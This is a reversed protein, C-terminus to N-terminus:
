ELSIAYTEIDSLCSQLHQDEKDRNKQFEYWAERTLQNLTKLESSLSNADYLQNLFLSTLQDMHTSFTRIRQVDTKQAGYMILQNLSQYLARIKNSQELLRIIHKQGIIEAIDFSTMSIFQPHQGQALKQTVFAQMRILVEEGRNQAFEMLQEQSSVYPLTLDAGYKILTILAAVHGNQAAILALTTENKNIQNLNIYKALQALVAVHGNHDAIFAPTIDADDTADLNTNLETLEGIVDAHGFTAAIFALNYHESRQAIEETIQHTEKLSALEEKLEAIFPYNGTTFLSTNFAIYTSNHLKFGLVILQALKETDSFHFTKPPYQNIDMMKWGRWSTYTLAITHCANSLVIGYPTNPAFAHSEISLFLEDM